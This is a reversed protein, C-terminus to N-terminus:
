DTDVLPKLRQVLVFSDAQLQVQGFGGQGPYAAIFVAQFLNKGDEQVIGQAIRWSAATDTQGCGYLRILM